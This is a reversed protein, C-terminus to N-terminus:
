PKLRQLFYCGCVLWPHVCYSCIPCQVSIHTRATPIKLGDKDECAVYVKKYKKHGKIGLEGMLWGAEQPTLNFARRFLLKVEVFASADTRPVREFSALVLKGRAMNEASVVKNFHAARDRTRWDQLTEFKCRTKRTRASRGVPIWRLGIHWWGFAHKAWFHFRCMRQGVALYDRSQRQRPPIFSTEAQMGKKGWCDSCNIFNWFSSIPKQGCLRGTVTQHWWSFGDKSIATWFIQM